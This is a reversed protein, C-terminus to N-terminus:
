PQDKMNCKPKLNSKNMKKSDGILFNSIATNLSYSVYPLKDNKKANCAFKDNGKVSLLWKVLLLLAENAPM